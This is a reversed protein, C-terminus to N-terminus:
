IIFYTKQLRMVASESSTSYIQVLDGSINATVSILSSTTISKNVNSVSVNSGFQTISFEAFESGTSGTTSALYKASRYVNKNFSDILVAGTTLTINAANIEQANEATVTGSAIFRVSIIDTILPIESFTIQNGAVTYATGPAQLTGNVSVIIGEATTSYDLTYTYSAGDPSITQNNIQSLLSIWASGTYIELSNNSSNWRIAGAYATPQQATTGSPLQLASTGNIVVVANSNSLLPSLILNGTISSVTIDEIKINGLNATTVNANSLSIYGGTVVLNSSSLNPSVLTQINGNTVNLESAYWSQVNGTVSTINSINYLYGGSILVNGTSFNNAQIDVNYIVGGTVLANATSFNNIQANVNSIDGGNILANGSSFNNAQIDVNYIIGGSLLINGSSLNNVQADVNQINGGTILANATSFNNAQLDVNYLVGGSVLANATSFNNSQLDVNYLVGGSVLANATSFNNIQANVNSIEGGILLINASSLNNIQANINSLDGGNILANGSSFNNAQLDVNYISGGNILANATSFNNAQLDINYLIGGSVLANATSFNNFQANVNSIDGGTILANGSSLNNAQLNVNYITGGTALLNATSLNGAVLTLINGITSNLNFIFYNTANGNIVNETDVNIISAQVNGNFWEASVNGGFAAGNGSLNGSFNAAYLNGSVYFDNGTTVAGNGNAELVLNGNLNQISITNNALLINGFISDLQSIEGWSLNGNGDTYLVYNQAGGSITINSTTGLDIKGTNSSITNGQIIINSLKVNGSSDFAYQPSSNIVGVRLNTVDLYLLNSQFALDVGQRELNSFLMPGSIRGIAM